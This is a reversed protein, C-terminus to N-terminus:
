DAERTVVAYFSGHDGRDVRLLTKGDKAAGAVDGPSQVPRRDAEVIVDGRQLGALEAPSGPRVSTVVVKGAGHYGLQRAIDPTLSQLELGLEPRSGNDSGGQARAGARDIDKPRESAKVSLTQLKGDRRVGLQVSAGVPKLLVARLLDKGEIIAQSDVSEIIDGPHVGARDAPGKPVVSAVLAGHTDHKGLNEALEPSLEQFSVGLWARKVAGTDLLQQGVSRALNAPIAFGIGAGRGIIMTNIGLVRGHLDVLPGGSNGPNISADTQLYDEIENAGLGRGKASLVGATLTYDLGFPAGIAV